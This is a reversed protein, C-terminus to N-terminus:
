ETIRMLVIDKIKFAEINPEDKLNNKKVVFFSEEMNQFEDTDKFIKSCEIEHKINDKLIIELMM